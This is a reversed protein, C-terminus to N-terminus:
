SNIPIFFSGGENSSPDNTMEDVWEQCTVNLM